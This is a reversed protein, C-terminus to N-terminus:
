CKRTKNTIFICIFISIIIFLLDFGPLFGSSSESKNEVIVEIEPDNLIDMPEKTLLDRDVPVGRDTETDLDAIRKVTVEAGVRNAIIERNKTLAEVTGSGVTGFGIIGVNIQSM